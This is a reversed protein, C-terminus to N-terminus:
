FAPCSGTWTSGREALRRAVGPARRELLQRVVSFDVQLTRMDRDFYGSLEVFSTLLWFAPEEALGASLALGAVLEDGAHLGPRRVQARAAARVRQPHAAAAQQQVSLAHPLTRDVDRELQVFAAPLGRAIAASDSDFSLDPDSSAREIPIHPHKSGRLATM